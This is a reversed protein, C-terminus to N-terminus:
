LEWHGERYIWEICGTIPSVVRINSSFEKRRILISVWKHLQLYLVYRPFPQKVVKVLRLFSSQHKQWQGHFKILILRPHPQSRPELMPLIHCQPCPLHCGKALHTQRCALCEWRHNCLVLGLDRCTIQALTDLCHRLNWSNRACRLFIHLFLIIM